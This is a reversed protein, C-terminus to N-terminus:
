NDQMIFEKVIILKGQEIMKLHYIGSPFNSIDIITKSAIIAESLLLKGEVSFIEYALPNNKTNFTELTLNVSAPNPYLSISLRSQNETADIVEEEGEVITQIQNISAHYVMQILGNPWIIKISDITATGLGFHVIPSNSSGHSSGGDVERLQVNGLNDYLYVHAGFANKNSETGLLNLQVWNNSTATINYFLIVENRTNVDSAGPKDVPVLIIDLLGDNNLDGYAAGRGKANIILGSQRSFDTFTGDSNNKFFANPNIISNDIEESAPIFGNSVYLDLWGNNDYDLFGTGWGVALGELNASDQVGAFNTMLEFTGDGQNNLLENKGLNTVYYDLDLDNDYDGIGLGMGFLGINAGSAVSVDEFNDVPFQNQFLQNPQIFEGFDNVVYLDVDNDNDYDTFATALSTAKEEMEYVSSREQFTLDGNNLYLKNRYGIHQYISNGTVPDRIIKASDIYCAVAIDLWGDKNYDGFSASASWSSDVIGSLAPAIVNFTNDGNNIMLLNPFGKATLVLLDQWGDNDIDGAIVGNTIVDYYEIDELKLYAIKREFNTQKNLYFGNSNSGGVVFFDQWGDNDADFIAVGGAILTANQNVHRVGMEFAKDQFQGFMQQVSLLTTMLLVFRINKFEFTM